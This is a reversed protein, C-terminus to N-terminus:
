VESMTIQDDKERKRFCDFILNLLRNVHRSCSYSLGGYRYGNYDHIDRMIWENDIEHYFTRRRYEM